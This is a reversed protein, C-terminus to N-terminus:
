NKIGQPTTQRIAVELLQLLLHIAIYPIPSIYSNFYEYRSSQKTDSFHLLSLTGRKANGIGTGAHSALEAVEARAATTAVVEDDEDDDDDTANFQSLVDGPLERLHDM